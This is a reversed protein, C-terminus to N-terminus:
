NSNTNMKFSRIQVFAIGLIIIALPNIFFPRFQVQIIMLIISIMTAKALTKAEEDFYNKIIKRLSAISYWFIWVALLFSILGMEGLTTIIINHSIVGLRENHLREIMYPKLGRFGIGLIPNEKIAEIGYYYQLARRYDDASQDPGKLVNDVLNTSNILRTATSNILGKKLTTDLILGSFLILGAVSLAKFLIRLNFGKLIFYTLFIGMISLGIASRGESMFIIFLSAVWLFNRWNRSLGLQKSIILYPILLVVFAAGINPFSLVVEKMESSAARVSGFIMLFAFFILATIIPIVIVLKRVLGIISKKGVQLTMYFIFINILHIAGLFLTESPYHAWIVSFFPLSFFLYYNIAKNNHVLRSKGRLCDQFIILLFGFTIFLFHGKTWYLFVPQLVFIGILTIESIRARLDSELIVGTM